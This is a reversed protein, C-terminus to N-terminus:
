LNTKATPRFNHAHHQPRPKGGVWVRYAPDAMSPVRSPRLPRQYSKSTYSACADLRAGSVRQRRSTRILSASRFSSESCLRRPTLKDGSGVDCTVTQCRELLPSYIKTSTTRERSRCHRTERGEPQPYALHLACAGTRQSCTTLM